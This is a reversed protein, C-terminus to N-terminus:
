GYERVGSAKAHSHHVASRRMGCRPRVRRGRAACPPVCGGSPGRAVVVCACRKRGALILAAIGARRKWSSPTPERVPRRMPATSRSASPFSSRSANKASDLRTRSQISCDSSSSSTPSSLPLPLAPSTRMPGVSYVCSVPWSSHPRRTDRMEASAVCESPSASAVCADVDRALSESHSDLTSTDATRGNLRVSSAPSVGVGRCERVRRLVSGGGSSTEHSRSAVREELRVSVGRPRETDTSASIGSGRSTLRKARSESAGRRSETYPMEIHSSVRRSRDDAVGGLTDRGGLRSANPLRADLTASLRAELRPGAGNAGSSGSTSGYASSVTDSGGESTYAGGVAGTRIGSGGLFRPRPRGRLDSVSRASAAAPRAGGRPRGPRGGPRWIGGCFITSCIWSGGLQCSFLGSPRRRPRRCRIAGSSQHRPSRASYPRASAGSSAGVSGNPRTAGTRFFTTRTGRAGPSPVKEPIRRNLAFGASSIGSRAALAAGTSARAGGGSCPISRSVSGYPTTYSASCPSSTVIRM